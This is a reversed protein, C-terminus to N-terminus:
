YIIFKTRMVTKATSWLETDGSSADILTKFTDLLRKIRSPSVFWSLAGTHMRFNITDNCLWKRKSCYYDPKWYIMTPSPTNGRHFTQKHVIARAYAKNKALKQLVINLTSSFIKLRVWCTSPPHSFSPRREKGPQANSWLRANFYARLAWHRCPNYFEKKQSVFNDWDNALSMMTRVRRGKPSKIFLLSSCPYM